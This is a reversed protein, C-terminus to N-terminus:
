GSLNKICFFKFLKGSIEGKEVNNKSENEANNQMETKKLMDATFVVAPLSDKEKVGVICM